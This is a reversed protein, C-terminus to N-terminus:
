GTHGSTRQTHIVVQLLHRHVLTAPRRSGGCSKSCTGPVAPSRRLRVPTGSTRVARGLVLMGTASAVHVREPHSRKPAAWCWNLVTILQVNGISCGSANRLVLEGRGLTKAKRVAVVSIDTPQSDCSSTAAATCGLPSDSYPCFSSGLLLSRPLFDHSASSESASDLPWPIYVPGRIGTYGWSRISIIM